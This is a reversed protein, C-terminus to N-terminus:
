SGEVEKKKKEEVIFMMVVVDDGVADDDDVLVPRGFPMEKSSSRYTWGEVHVDNVIM